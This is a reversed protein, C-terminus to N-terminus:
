RKNRKNRISKLIYIAAIYGISDFLVDTITATRGAIFHQHIEDSIAYLLCFLITLFFGKTKGNCGKEQFIEMIFLNVFTGLLFYLGIHAGKRYMFELTYIFPFSDNADNVPMNTIAATKDTIKGSLEYSVTGPQHSLSFILLCVLIALFGFLYKKNVRM